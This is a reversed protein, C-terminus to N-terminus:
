ILIIVTAFKRFYKQKNKEPFSKGQALIQQWDEEKRKGGWLWLANNYM